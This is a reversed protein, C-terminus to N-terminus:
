ANGTSSRERRVDRQPSEGFFRKYERGFQSVSEYGVQASANAIDTAENLMLQKAQQLRLQKQYQLPSIGAIQHFHQRFTTPSMGVEAALADIATKEAFHQKLWSMARAIKQAPSGVTLLSRLTAGHVGTLLRVAIEKQILPALHPLLHQEQHLQVLRTIAQLLGYEAPAISLSNPATKEATRWEETDHAVQVLLANDLQLLLGLFPREPSAQVLQSVVPLDVTFLLSDGAGYDLKHRGYVIQKQGQLMLVLGRPYLCPAPAEPRSRRYLSLEPIPTTFDGDVQAIKCVADILEQYHREM